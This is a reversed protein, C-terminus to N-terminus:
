YFNHLAMTMCFTKTKLHPNNKFIIAGVWLCLHVIFQKDLQGCAWFKTKWSVMINQFNSPTSLKLFIIAFDLAESSVQIAFM